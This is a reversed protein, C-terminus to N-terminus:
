VEIFFKCLGRVFIQQFVKLLFYTFLYKECRKDLFNGEVYESTTFILELYLFAFKECFIWLM